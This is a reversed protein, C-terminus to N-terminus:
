GMAPLTPRRRDRMGADCRRSSSSPCRGAPEPTSGDLQGAFAARAAEVLEDTVDPYARADGM